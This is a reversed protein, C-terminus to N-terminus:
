HAKHDVKMESLLSLERVAIVENLLDQLQHANAAQMLSIHDFLGILVSLSSVGLVMCMMYM